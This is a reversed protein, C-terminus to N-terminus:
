SPKRLMLFSHVYDMQYSEPDNEILMKYQLWLQDILQNKETESRQDSLGNRFVATSWTTMTPLFNEAYAHADWEGSLYRAKYPCDTQQIRHELVEFGSEIAGKELDEKSRYFQPFNTNLFEEETVIQSWLRSFTAFMSEGTTKGLYTQDPSVCFNVGFFLGGPKLEQWRSKLIQSWNERALKQFPAVADQDSCEVHHVQGPIQGPATSLWHMATASYSFDVSSSPAAQDFFPTGNGMVYFPAFQNRLSDSEGREYIKFLTNYDAGPLDNSILTAPRAKSQERLDRILSTWLPVATGGDAAGLDLFVAPDNREFFESAQLHSQALPLSAEIVNQAGRTLDTYNSTMAVYDTTSSSM